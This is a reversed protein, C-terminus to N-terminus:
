TSLIKWMEEKDQQRVRRINRVQLYAVALNISFLLLSFGMYWYNHKIYHSYASALQGFSIVLNIIGVWVFIKVWKSHFDSM